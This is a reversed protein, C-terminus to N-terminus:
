QPADAQRERPGRNNRPRRNRHHFGDGIEAHHIIEPHLGQGRPNERCPQLRAIRAARRLDRQHDKGHDHPQEPQFFGAALVLSEIM